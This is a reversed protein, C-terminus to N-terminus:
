VREECGTVDADAGASHKEVNDHRSTAAWAAACRRPNTLMLTLLAQGKKETEGCNPRRRRGKAAM